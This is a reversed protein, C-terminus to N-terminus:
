VRSHVARTLRPLDQNSSALFFCPLLIGDVGGGVEGWDYDHSELSIETPPVHAVASVNSRNPPRAAREQGLGFGKLSRPLFKAHTPTPNGGKPAFRLAPAGSVQLRSRMGPRVLPHSLAIRRAWDGCSHAAGRASSKLRRARKWGVQDFAGREQLVATDRVSTLACPSPRVNLNPCAVNLGLLFRGHQLTLGIGLTPM